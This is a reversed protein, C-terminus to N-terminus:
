GAADPASGRLKLYVPLTRPGLRKGHLQSLLTEVLEVGAEAVPQHVTTLPPDCYAALPMDDYGVLAVDGPVSRGAARLAQIMLLALVDSCCVVADFDRRRACFEHVVDTAAGPEFPAPLELAPDVDVGFERLAQAYGQRRLWVEPLRADGVFAIRRRGLQLLHRAALSGGLVNDGGVSCYLQQPMEGGWVVLPLKRAAMENLQDHHRWQGILIVGIAKGSDFWHSALDLHEADVRSLLMDYGRDTLADAIAGVISLFFPDSIHQRSKADYPVVVAVTKNEQLRLNRAGFNISYNLSRALEAVRQRTEANVLESGNLARSVTSVSVGALRAIDVMQLRRQEGASPTAVPEKPASKSM